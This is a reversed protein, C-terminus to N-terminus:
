LIPYKNHCIRWYKGTWITFEESENCLPCDEKGQDKPQNKHWDERNQLKM